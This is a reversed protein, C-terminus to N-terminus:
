PPGTGPDFEEFGEDALDVHAASQQEAIHQHHALGLVGMLDNIMSAGLAAGQDDDARELVLAKDLLIGASVYAAQQERLPPLRLTVLQTHAGTGVIVTYPGQARDLMTEADTYLRETLRIRAQRADFAHARTANKTQSREFADDAGAERAIGTVVSPSVGHDRAIQRCSKGGAHIDALIAARVHEPTRRGM